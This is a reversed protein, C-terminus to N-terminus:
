QMYLVVLYSLIALIIAVSWIPVVTKNRYGLGFQRFSGDERYIITPKTVHIITFLILFIFIALTVKNMRVFRKTLYM